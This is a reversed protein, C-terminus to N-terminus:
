NILLAPSDEFRILYEILEKDNKNQIEGMENANINYDAYKFINVYDILNQELLKPIAENTSNDYGFLYSNPLDVIINPIVSLNYKNCIDIAIYIDKLTHGKNMWKLTSNSFSEVGLEVHSVELDVLEKVFNANISSIRTQVIAKTNLAENVLKLKKYNDCDGFTKDDLYILKYDLESSELAVIQKLITEQKVPTIRKDINSCFRCNHKCGRSLMIRPICQTKGFISYDPTINFIDIHDEKLNPINFKTKTYNGIIIPVESPILKFIENAEYESGNMISMYVTGLNDIDRLKNKILSIHHQKIGLSVIELTNGNQKSIKNIYAIWLPLELTDEQHYFGISYRNKYVTGYYDFLKKQTTSIENFFYSNFYIALDTKM